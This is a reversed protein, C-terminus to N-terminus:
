YYYFRGWRMLIMVIILIWWEITPDGDGVDNAADDDNGGCGNVDKDDENYNDWAGIACDNEENDGASDDNEEYDFM